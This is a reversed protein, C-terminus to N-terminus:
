SRRDGRGPDTLRVYAITLVISALGIAVVAGIAFLPDGVLGPGEGPSRPDGGVAGPTPEAGLVPIAAAGLLNGTAILCAWLAAVLARRRPALLSTALRV